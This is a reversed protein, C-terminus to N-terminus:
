KLPLIIGFTVDCDEVVPHGSINELSIGPTKWSKGLRKGPSKLSFGIM